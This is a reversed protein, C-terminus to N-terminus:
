KRYFDAVYGEASVPMTRAWKPLRTMCEILDDLTLDSDEDVETVVEDHFHAITFFGADEANHIGGELLDRSIAQCCNHVLIM